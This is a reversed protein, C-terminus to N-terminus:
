HRKIIAFVIAGIFVPVLIKVIMLVAASNSTIAFLMELDGRMELENSDVIGFQLNRLSKM